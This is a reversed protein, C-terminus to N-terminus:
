GGTRENKFTIRVTPVLGLELGSVSILYKLRENEIRLQKVESELDAVQDALTKDNM